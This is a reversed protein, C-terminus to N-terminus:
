FYKIPNTYVESLRIAFKPFKKTLLDYFLDRTFQESEYHGIDLVLLRDEAEFFQHYKLDSTIFADAGAAMAKQMLFSGSGGCVAVTRIAKGILSTHRICGTKYAEKVRDLFDHEDMPQKLEGIMGTGIKPHLNELPYIDYAVEEYPHAKIMERVVRGTATSPVITEIRIEKEHHLVGPEGAFPSTNESGRFTGEGGSNFSCSDYGGIEGAGAEFMAKRVRDAYKEPVFVVLKRLMEGAPELIRLNHLGMKEAMYKNVGQDISDFNTHGAYVAIGNRVASLITRETSGRGTISKLAKFILPHHAVILNCKCRFAEDVVEETVDLSILIGRVEMGPEGVQLGSNDYSEQISLPALGELYGTVDNVKM